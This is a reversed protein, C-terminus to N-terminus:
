RDGAGEGLRMIEWRLEVGTKNLVEKRLGEVLAEIDAATAQGRNIMFNCHQESCQADGVVRGRGGIDDILQWAKRGGSKAPEPNAFTSGGTKERIPQSKERREMIAKMRAEIAVPDDARGEFTAQTFILGEGAGCHRYAFKMDANNLVRRVGDRDYAVAEVLIDKTEQDYAGANMALAGGITGPVGRYFELGAVGARAAARAVQADLAAAGATVRTGEIAIKAFPAGLRIVVGRVGGDRVLLNSGVGVPYVPIKTPTNKLFGALDDEDEPAYLIDAPGGVRFWTIASMDAREVYRGRVPPLDSAALRM